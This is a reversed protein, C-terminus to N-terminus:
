GRPLDGFFRERFEGSPEEQGFPNPFIEAPDAVQTASINVVVPRLKKALSVFQPLGQPGGVALNPSTGASFLSLSQGVGMGLLLFLFGVGLLVKIGSKGDSDLIEKM